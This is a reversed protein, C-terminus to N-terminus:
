GPAPLYNQITAPQANFYTKWRVDGTDITGQNPWAVPDQSGCLIAGVAAETSDTFQVIINMPDDKSSIPRALTLSLRHARYTRRRTIFLRHPQLILKMTQLMLRALM